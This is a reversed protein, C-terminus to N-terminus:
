YALGRRPIRNTKRDPDYVAFTNRIGSDPRGRRKEIREDTVRSPDGFDPTAKRRKGNGQGMVQAMYADGTKDAQAANALRKNKGLTGAEYRKGIPEPRRYLDPSLDRRPLEKTIRDPRGNNMRASILDDGQRREKTDRIPLAGSGDPRRGGPGPAMPEYYPNPLLETIEPRRESPIKEMERGPTDKKPKKGSGSAQLNDTIGKGSSFNDLDSLFGDRMKDMEKGMDGITKGPAPKREAVPRGDSPRGAPVPRREVEARATSRGAGFGKLINSAVDSMIAKRSDTIRAEKEQNTGQGSRLGAIRARRAKDQAKYAALEQAFDKSSALSADVKARSDQAMKTNRDTEARVNAQIQDYRDLDKYADAVLADDKKQREPTLPLYTSPYYRTHGPEHVENLLENIYNNINRTAM